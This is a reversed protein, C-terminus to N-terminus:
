DCKYKFDYTAIDGNLYFRQLNIRRGNEDVDYVNTFSRSAKIDGSGDFSKTKQLKYATFNLFSSISYRPNPAGKDYTYIMRSFLAGDEYVRVIVILQDAEEEYEYTYLNVRTITGMEDLFVINRSEISELTKVGKYKYEIYYRLIESGNVIDFYEIKSPIIGNDDYQYSRYGVVFSYGDEEDLRNVRELRDLDDRQYTYRGGVDFDGNDDFYQTNAIVLGENDFDYEYRYINGLPDTLTYEELLCGKPFADPLNLGDGVEKECASFVTIIFLCIYVLHASSLRM